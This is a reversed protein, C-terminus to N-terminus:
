RRLELEMFDTPLEDVNRLFISDGDDPNFFLGRLIQKGGEQKM